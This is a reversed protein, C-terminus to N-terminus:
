SQVERVAAMESIVTQQRMLLYAMSDGIAGGIWDPSNFAIGHKGLMMAFAPDINASIRIEDLTGRASIAWSVIRSISDAENALEELSDVHKAM